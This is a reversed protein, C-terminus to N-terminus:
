HLRRSPAEGLTQPVRFRQRLGKPHPARCTRLRPRRLSPRRRYPRPLPQPHAAQPLRPANPTRLRRPSRLPLSPISRHHPRCAPCTERLALLTKHSTPTSKPPRHRRRSGHLPQRAAVPAPPRNSSAVRTPKPAPKCPHKFPAFPAFPPPSQSPRLREPRRPSSLVRPHFDLPLSTAHKPHAHIHGAIWCLSHTPHM